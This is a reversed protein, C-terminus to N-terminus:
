FTWTARLGTGFPVYATEVRLGPRSWVKLWLFTFAHAGVGWWARRKVDRPPKGLLKAAPYVTKAAGAFNILFLGANKKAAILGWGLADVGALPYTYAVSHDKVPEYYSYFYYDGLVVPVTFIENAAKVPRPSALLLLFAAATLSLNRRM